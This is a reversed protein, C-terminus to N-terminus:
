TEGYDILKAEREAIDTLLGAVLQAVWAQVRVLMNPADDQAGPHANAQQARKLFIPRLRALM